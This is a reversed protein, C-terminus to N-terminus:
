GELLAVSEEQKLVFAPLVLRGGNLNLFHFVTLAHRRIFNKVWSIFIIQKWQLHDKM